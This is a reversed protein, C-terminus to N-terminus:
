DIGSVTLSHYKSSIAILRHVENPLVVFTINNHEDFIPFIIRPKQVAVSKVCKLPVTNLANM